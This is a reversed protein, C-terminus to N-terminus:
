EVRAALVEDAEAVRAAGAHRPIQVFGHAPILEGCRAVIRLGRHREAHHMFRAVFHAFVHGFRHAVEADGGRGPAGGSLGPERGIIALMNGPDEHTANTAPNWITVTGSWYRPGVPAVAAAAGLAPPAPAAVIPISYTAGVTATLDSPYFTVNVTGSDLPDGFGSGPPGPSQTFVFSPSVATSVVKEGNFEAVWRPTAPFADGDRM